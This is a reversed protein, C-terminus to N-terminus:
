IQILLIQYKKKLYPLYFKHFILVFYIVGQYYLKEIMHNLYKKILILYMLIYTYTYVYIKIQLRFLFHDYYPQFSESNLGFVREKSM